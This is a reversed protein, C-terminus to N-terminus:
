KAFAEKLPDRAKNLSSNKFGEGKKSDWRHIRQSLSTKTQYKNEPFGSLL